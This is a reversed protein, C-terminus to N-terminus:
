WNSLLFFNTFRLGPNPSVPISAKEESTTGGNPGNPPVHGAKAVLGAPVRVTLCDPAIEWECTAEDFVVASLADGLSRDGLCLSCGRDAAAAAAAVVAAPDRWLRRGRALMM